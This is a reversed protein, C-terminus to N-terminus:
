VGFNMYEIISLKALISLMIGQLESSNIILMQANMIFTDILEAIENPDKNPALFEQIKDKQLM